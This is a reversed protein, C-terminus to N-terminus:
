AARTKTTTAQATQDHDATASQRSLLLEIESPKMAKYYLWGQIQDCGAARVMVAQEETEVGEATVDMGLSRAVAVSAILMARSGADATAEVVLSRDIKLKEFRFQRLFGISAYGTGFDDLVIRVGFDRIMAMSRGAVESDIVLHTETVELELRHAPFGTEELVQGVEIPFEPNRLQAASINVSLKIGDWGLAELCAQRLVWKGIANIIGSEEAVPIFVNPGIKVGDRREWRLLAEVAVIRGSNADVLPQYHLRFEDRDLGDRLAGDLERIADRNRDFEESFWTCRMKGARKSAYMAVDTQRLLESSSFEANASSRALGISAGVAIARDDIHFPRTLRMLLKRCIGELINGAIPGAVFVAFEDGGLRYVRAEDGCVEDLLAACDKILRDGVFHGYHDNVQKFGDLDILALATEQGPMTLRQVDLHLARRNPLMSLSDTLGLLELKGVNALGFRVLYFVTIGYVASGGLVVWPNVVPAIGATAIVVGAVAAFIATLVVLPAVVSMKPSMRQDFAGLIL